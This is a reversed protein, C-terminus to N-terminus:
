EILEEAFIALFAYKTVYHVYIWSSLFHSHLKPNYLHRSIAQCASNSAADSCADQEASNILFTVCAGKGISIPTTVSNSTLRRDHVSLGLGWLLRHLFQMWAHVEHKSKLEPRLMYIFNILSECVSSFVLTHEVPDRIVHCMLACHEYNNPVNVLVSNWM